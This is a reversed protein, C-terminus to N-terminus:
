RDTLNIRRIQQLNGVSPLQGGSFVQLNVLSITACRELRGSLNSAAAIRLGFEREYMVPRIQWFIRIPVPTDAPIRTLSRPAKSPGQEMQLFIHLRREFKTMGRGDHVM